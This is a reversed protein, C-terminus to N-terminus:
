GNRLAEVLDLLRDFREEPPADKVSRAAARTAPSDVGHGWETGTSPPAAAAAPPPETEGRPAEQLPQVSAAYTVQLRGDPLQLAQPAVHLALTIEPLPFSTPQQAAPPASFDPASAPPPEPVADGRLARGLLALVDQDRRRLADQEEETLDFGEFAANPSTRALRRFEDDLVAKVLFRRLEGADAM